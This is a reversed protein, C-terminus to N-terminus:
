SGALAEKMAELLLSSLEESIECHYCILPRTREEVSGSGIRIGEKKFHADWWRARGADRVWFAVQYVEIAGRNRCSPHSSDPSVRIDVENQSPNQRYHIWPGLRSPRTSRGIKAMPLKLGCRQAIGELREATKRAIELRQQPDLIIKSM